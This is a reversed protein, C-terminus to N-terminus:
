KIFINTSDPKPSFKKFHCTGSIEIEKEDYSSKMKNLVYTSDDLIVGCNIFARFPGYYLLEIQITSNEIKYLGWSSKSGKVIKYFQGNKFQEERIKLEDKTPNGCDLVVGNKYFFRIHYRMTSDSGINMFYYYGDIRLENGSYDTRVFSLDENKGFLKELSTPDCASM